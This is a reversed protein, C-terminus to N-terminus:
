SKFDLEANFKDDMLPLDCIQCIECKNRLLWDNAYVTKNEYAKNGKLKNLSWKRTVPNGMFYRITRLPHTKAHISAKPHQTLLTLCLTDTRKEVSEKNKFYFEAGYGITLADGGWEGSFSYNLISSRTRIDLENEPFSYHHREISIDMQHIRVNYYNTTKIDELIICFNLNKPENKLWHKRSHINQIIASKLSIAEQETIYQEENKQRIEIEYQTDILYSLGKSTLENRYPSKSILVNNELVDGSYMDIIKISQSQTPFYKQFYDAVELPKFKTKNIWKKEKELLAFDAAFPIASKPNLLTVIKCFNHVFQQERVRAIEEENKGPFHITNPFYSAGGYGSFVLDIKPFTKLVEHCFFAIVGSPYAHLADNINVVVKGNHEIVIISDLGNAFYTVSTNKSLTYKKATIAEKANKFGLSNFYNKVGGYWNYPYFIKAKKSFHLLSKEHLHDEHGHSYLIVDASKIKEANVPKRFIYWQNCYAPGDFWPDTVIKINGTDILLCAHGVYEITMKYKKTKGCKKLLM